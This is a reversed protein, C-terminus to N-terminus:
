HVAFPRLLDMSHKSGDTFYLMGFQYDEGIFTLEGVDKVTKVEEYSQLRIGQFILATLEGTNPQVMDRIYDPLCTLIVRRGIYQDRLSQQKEECQQQTFM